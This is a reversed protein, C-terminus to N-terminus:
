CGACRKAWATHLKLMLGTVLKQYEALIMPEHPRVTVVFDYGVPLDYQHLRFSERLLRKIRNRRVANGVARSLSIGFRPHSLGNPLAYVVLAGRAERVRADFVRRYEERKSLRHKRPFTYSREPVIFSSSTLQWNGTFDKQGSAVL